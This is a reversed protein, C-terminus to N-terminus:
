TSDRDISSRAPRSRTALVSREPRLGEFLGYIAEPAAVQTGSTLLTASGAAVGFRAAEGLSCGQSLAWTTGGVMADGAGVASRVKVAPAVIREAGERSVLLAGRPGLSVLVVEAFGTEVLAAAAAAEEAEGILKRGVLLELERLNPKILFPRRAGSTRLHDGPLDLILRAAVMNCWEGLQEILEPGVGPPPSGSIVVFEPPPRVGKVRDICSQQEAASLVPGPMVFRYENGSQGEAVTLNARTDGAIPIFAFPTGTRLLLDEFRARFPGGATVVALVDGGLAHILNAVNIGGGGPYYAPEACRLKDTPRVERTSTSVDLSPNLTLTVVKAMM